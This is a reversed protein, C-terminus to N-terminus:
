ATPQSDTKPKQTEQRAIEIMNKTLQYRPYVIMGFTLALALEDAFREIWLPIWKSAVKNSLSGLKKKEDPSLKWFEGYRKAFYDFPIEILNDIFDLDFLPLTKKVEERRRQEGLLGAEALTKAIRAQGVGLEKSIERYKKGEKALRIIAEDKTEEPGPTLDEFLPDIPQTKPDTKGTKKKSGDKM